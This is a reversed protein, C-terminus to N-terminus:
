KKRRGWLVDTSNKLFSFISRVDTQRLINFVYAPNRLFYRLYVMRRVRLLDLKAPYPLGGGAPDYLSWDQSMQYREMYEDFFRSGPYPIALNCQLADAKLEMVMDVIRRAMAKESHDFDPFLIIFAVTEIGAERTLAFAEKTAERTTKRGLEDVLDLDEVGYFLRFCGARKMLSLLDRTVPPVRMNSCWRIDLKRRLVEECFSATWDPKLNIASDIFFFSRIGFEKLDREMEGIIRAVSFTRVRKGFLFPIVCYPCSYHCGRNALLISFRERGMILSHYADLKLLDLAPYPLDDLPEVWGPEPSFSGPTWLGKSDGTPGAAGTVARAAGYEPDGALIHTVGHQFLEEPLAMAHFGFVIRRDVKNKLLDLMPYDDMATATAINTIIADPHWDAITQDLEKFPDRSLRLDLIRPEVAEQRLRGAISTLDCPPMLSGVPSTISCTWFKNKTVSPSTLLLAKKKEM